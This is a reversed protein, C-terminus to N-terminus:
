GLLKNEAKRLHELVTAESIGLEEGLEEASAERPWEYYGQKRALQIVERQRETLNDDNNTELSSQSVSQISRIEIDANETREINELRESVNDLEPNAVVTWYEYGGKIRIPEGPIFGNSVFPEHITNVPEYAVLLKKVANGPLGSYNSHGFRKKMSWVKSTLPSAEIATELEAVDDRKDGYASVHAIIDSGVHYVGHGVLGGSNDMTADLTWCKPHWVKLDLRTEFGSSKDAHTSM